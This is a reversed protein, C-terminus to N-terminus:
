ARRDNTFPDATNSYGRSEWYGIEQTVTFKIEEVWKASKYGYKQPVVLRLPGGHKPALEEDDLRYALLVDERSLQEIPLSTTYGLKCKITAFNAWKRVDALEMITKFQVGEWKNEFKTWGTVCHFDSTSVKKPLERLQQYSLNLRNKVAGLVKLPWEENNIPINGVHLVSLNLVERQGPPLINSEPPTENPPPPQEPPIKDPVPPVESTEPPIEGTIPPVESSVPPQEPPPESTVPKTGNPIQPQNPTIENPLLNESKQLIYYLFGGTSVILIASGIGTKLFRRRDM